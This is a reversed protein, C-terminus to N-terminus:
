NPCVMRKCVGIKLISYTRTNRPDDTYHFPSHVPTVQLSRCRLNTSAKRTRSINAIQHCAHTRWQQSSTRTVQKHQSRPKGTRFTPGLTASRITLGSPGLPQTTKDRQPPIFWPCKHTSTATRSTLLRNIQFKRSVLSIRRLANDHVQRYKQKSTHYTPTM